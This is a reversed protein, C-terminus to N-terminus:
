AFVKFTFFFSLFEIWFELLYFLVLRHRWAASLIRHPSFTAPAAQLCCLSFWRGLRYPTRCDRRGISLSSSRLFARRKVFFLILPLFCGGKWMILFQLLHLPCKISGLIVCASLLSCQWLCVAAMFNSEKKEVFRWSLHLGNFSSECSFSHISRSRPFCKKKCNEYLCVSFFTEFFATSLM